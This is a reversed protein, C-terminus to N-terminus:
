PKVTSDPHSFLQALRPVRWQLGTESRYLGHIKQTELATELSTLDPYTLVELRLHVPALGQRLTELPATSAEPAWVGLRAVMSSRVTIAYLLVALLTGVLAETLAVDAAGLVAYLLASAAGVIGRLILARYPNTQLLTLGSTLPVLAAILLIAFDTM